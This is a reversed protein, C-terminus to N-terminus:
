LGGVWLCKDRLMVTVLLLQLVLMTIAVLEGMTFINLFGMASDTASSTVLVPQHLPEGSVQLTGTLPIWGQHPPLPQPQQKGPCITTGLM